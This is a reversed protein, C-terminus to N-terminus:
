HEFAREISAKANTQWEKSYTKWESYSVPDPSKIAEQSKAIATDIKYSEPLNPCAISHNSIALFVTITALFNM